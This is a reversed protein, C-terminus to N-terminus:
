QLRVIQFEMGRKDVTIEGETHTLSGLELSPGKFVTLLPELKKQAKERQDNAAVTVGFTSFGVTLYSRLYDQLVQSSMMSNHM